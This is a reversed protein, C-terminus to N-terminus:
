RPLNLRKSSKLISTLAMEEQPETSKLAPFWSCTNKLAEFCSYTFEIIRRRVEMREGEAELGGNLFAAAPSVRGAPVPAASVGGQGGAPGM